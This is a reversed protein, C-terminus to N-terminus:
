KEALREAIKLWNIIQWFNEVYDVRRNQYKLYYAHEWVDILLLPVGQLSVDDMLPSEQNQTSGIELKGDDQKVLWSWGSGFHTEAAQTFEKKFNEISGFENDLAQKLSFLPDGEKAQMLDELQGASEKVPTMSQWFLNHNHYGGGNNRVAPSLSSAQSFVQEITDGELEHGQLAMNLKHTYGQHHKTYHVEMTQADIVPELADYKYSLKTQTFM